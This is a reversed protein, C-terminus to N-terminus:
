LSPGQPGFTGEDLVDKRVDTQDVDEYAVPGEVQHAEPGPQNGIYVVNPDTGIDELLKFQSQPDGGFNELVEQALEEDSGQFEEDEGPDEALELEVLLEQSELDLGNEDLARVVDFVAAEQEALTENAGHEPEGGEGLIAVALVIAITEEDLDEVSEVVSQLDQDDGELNEEITQPDPLDTEIRVLSRSKATNEIYRQPDSNPDNMDGFQIVEPPCADECATRGVFEEGKSGDQRTPCFTCKEMVGRPGRASVPRGREDYVHDEELESAPVEPEDWQFYNVGYPCAVQCYRCGICVDYDTLVLGDSDRTHRATTPCVKECPADTCHQCPRILRYDEEEDTTEDQYDLIYMWNAGQDWDHEEACAVVCSLCGDCHELDLAMGWQTGENEEGGEESEATVAAAPPEDSGGNSIGWAGFGVAGAGGMKKMVDRRSEEDVGFRSLTSELRGDEDADGAEIPREDEGFEDMVDEHYRDHFEEESLEGKTVRMADRAMEMGLEADYETDELEAELGDQWEEGLPHFTEEDAGEHDDSSM